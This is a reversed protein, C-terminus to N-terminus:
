GFHSLTLWGFGVESKTDLSSLHINRWNHRNKLAYTGMTLCPPSIALHTKHLSAHTRTAPAATQPNM